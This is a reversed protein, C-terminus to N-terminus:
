KRAQDVLRRMTRVSNKLGVFVAEGILFHGINLEAIEPVAAIAGVNNYNLGHGAHVELGLKHAQTAAWQLRKLEKKQAPAKANAYTGTHLEIAAAGTTWAAMIQQAEPNIFLSVRIGAAALQTVIRGLKKGGKIVDLGGETTVERRKEPVLCVAHPKIKLAIALMEETAAIELNIPVTVAKRLRVVDGDMVHRRDERLHFTISDAGGKIAEQAGRLLDPAALVARSRANRLTAIHDINIGLRLRTRPHNQDNSMPTGTNPANIHKPM